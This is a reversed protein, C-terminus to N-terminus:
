TKPRKFVLRYNEYNVTVSIVLNVLEWGDGGLENSFESVSSGRKWERVEQQNVYRPRWSGAHLQATVFLYEWTQM